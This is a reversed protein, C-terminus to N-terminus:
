LPKAPPLGRIDAAIRDSMRALAASLGQVLGETGAAAPVTLHLSRAMRTAENGARYVVLEADVVANGAGDRAFRSIALEVFAGPEGATADDQVFFSTGPMRQRLDAALVHPIQASLATSWADTTSVQLRYQSDDLVIRDRDLTDSISPTRIEVGGPVTASPLGGTGPPTPGPLPQLTYLSPSTSSCAALTLGATALLAGGLALRVPRMFSSTAQRLFTM